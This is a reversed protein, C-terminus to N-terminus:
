ACTSIDAFIEAHRDGDIWVLLAAAVVADALIAEFEHPVATYIEMWTHRGDQPLPRRKLAGVIGFEKRLRSQMAGVRQQLEAAHETRARYYIYWDMRGAASQPLIALGDAAAPKM